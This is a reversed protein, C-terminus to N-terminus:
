AVLPFNGAWFLESHAIQMHRVLGELGVPTYLGHSVPCMACCHRAIQVFRKEAATLRRAANQVLLEHRALDRYEDATMGVRRPPLTPLTERPVLGLRARFPKLLLQTSPSFYEMRQTAGSRLEAELRALHWQTCANRWTDVFGGHGKQGYDWHTWDTLRTLMELANDCIWPSEVADVEADRLKRTPDALWGSAPTYPLQTPRTALAAPAFLFTRLSATPAFRTRYTAFIAPGPTNFQNQLMSAGNVPVDESSYPDRGEWMREAVRVLEWRLMRRRQEIGSRELQHNATLRDVAKQRQRMTACYYGTLRRTLQDIEPAFFYETKRNWGLRITARTLSELKPFVDPIKKVTAMTTSYERLCPDCWQMKWHRSVRVSGEWTQRNFCVSCCGPMKLWGQMERKYNFIPDYPAGVYAKKDRKYWRGVEDRLRCTDEPSLPLDYIGQGQEQEQREAGTTSTTSPLSSATSTGAVPFMPPPALPVVVEPWAPGKYADLSALIRAFVLARLEDENQWKEPKTWLHPPLVEYWIQNAEEFSLIQRMRRCSDALNLVWVPDLYAAIRGVLEAPLTSLSLTKRASRRVSSAPGSKDTMEIDDSLKSGSTLAM